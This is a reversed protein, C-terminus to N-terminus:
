YASGKAVKCVRLKKGHLYFKYLTIVLKLIGRERFDIEM